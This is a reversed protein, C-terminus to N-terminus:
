SSAVNIYVNGAVAATAALLTSAETTVTGPIVAIVSISNIGDLAGVANDGDHDAFDVTATGGAPVLICRTAAVGLAVIGATFTFTARVLNPSTNYLTASQVPVAPDVVQAVGAGAPIAAVFSGVEKSLDPSLPASFSGGTMAM